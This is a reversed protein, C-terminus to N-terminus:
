AGRVGDTAGGVAARSLFVLRAREKFAHDLHGIAGREVRRGRWAAVFADIAPLHEAVNTPTNPLRLLFDPEPPPFDTDAFALITPLGCALYERVKLACAEDMGKAHLALPAVAVDARHLLHVFRERGLPGHARVGAPCAARQADTIGGILDIRWTPRAKALTVLQDFGAWRQTLNGLFVLRPPDNAPAPGPTFAQLDIGNAIVTQPAAFRASRGALEHTVCVFGAMRRLLRTRTARHVVYLPWPWARRMEAVDDSNIEAVMPTARALRAWGPLYVGFRAYIVDPRWAHVHRAQRLSAAYVGALGGVWTPHVEGDAAGPWVFREGPALAFLAAEHGAARWASMQGVVKKLVGTETSLPLYALYAIRM